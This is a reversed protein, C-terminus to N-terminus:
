HPQVETGRGSIIYTVRVTMRGTTCVDANTIGIRINRGGINKFGPTLLNVAGVAKLDATAHYRNTSDVDGLIVAYGLTDFVQETIIQGGIVISNIPLNIIDATVALDSTGFNKTVGNVDVITDAVSFTFEAVVPNQTYRSATLLAM